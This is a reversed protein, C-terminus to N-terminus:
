ISRLQVYCTGRSASSNVTRKIYKRKILTNLANKVIYDQIGQKEMKSLIEKKPIPIKQNKVWQDILVMISTHPTNLKRTEM